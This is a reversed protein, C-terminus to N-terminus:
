IWEYSLREIRDDFVHLMCVVIDIGVCFLGEGTSQYRESGCIITGRAATTVQLAVLSMLHAIVMVVSFVRDRQQPSRIPRPGLAVKLPRLRTKLDCVNKSSRQQMSYLVLGLHQQSFVYTCMSNLKLEQSFLSSIIM